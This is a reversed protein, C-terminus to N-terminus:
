DASDFGQSLDYESVFRVRERAVEETYFIEYQSYDFRLKLM